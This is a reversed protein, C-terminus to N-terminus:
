LDHLTDVPDHSASPCPSVKLDLVTQTRLVRVAPITTM